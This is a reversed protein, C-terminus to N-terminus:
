VTTPTSSRFLAQIKVCPPTSGTNPICKGWEIGMEELRKQRDPELKEKRKLQRQRCAWKGLNAGEEKHSQPVNCHGERKKFQQLLAHMEDWTASRVEWEFGIKELRKQRVPDLTEKMKVYRQKSVWKGLNVEDETHSVPVMCHGERKNFQKLLAYMEKWKLGWEFGIEELRKENDPDIKEKTKLQRQANVWRGLNVEDEIHSVPVNCHGEHNKFQQLLAYTEDWTKLIAWEFGIEELRKQRYNGLKQDRKRYRQSYVWMGLNAGDEKHPEPVNCHGEREHFQKLLLYKEEWNLRQVYPWEINVIMWVGLKAGDEIHSRPVHWHGERKKFQFLLAYYEDWTASPSMWKFGCEAMRKQRDSDLKDKSKLQRQDNVWQGLQVGDEKHLLPVNCHGERDNFQKLLLCTEEWQMQNIDLRLSNVNDDIQVEIGASQASIIIGASQASLFSKKREDRRPSSSQSM